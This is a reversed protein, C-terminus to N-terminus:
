IQQLIEADAILLNSLLTNDEDFYYFDPLLPATPDNKYVSKFHSAILNSIGSGDRSFRNNLLM